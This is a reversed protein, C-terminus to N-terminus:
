IVGQLSHTLGVYDVKINHAANGASRHYVRVKAAGSSVYNGNSNRPIYMTMSAEFTRSDQFARLTDWASTNYNWIDWTIDHTASGSYLWRTVAMTPYKDVNSFVFEVDYGPTAALEEIQFVNGDFMTQVDSVSGTTGDSANVTISSPVFDTWKLNGKSVVAGSQEKYLLDGDAGSGTGDGMWFVAKGEIPDTPDTSLEEITIAGAINLKTPLTTTAVGLQGDKGLVMLSSTNNLWQSHLAGATALTNETDYKYAIADAADAISPKLILETLNAGGYYDGETKLDVGGGGSNQINFIGRTVLGLNFHNLVTAASLATGKYVAVEDMEGNYNFGASDAYFRGMVLGVNDNDWTLGTVDGTGKAVGNVYFRLTNVDRVVVVHNWSDVTVASNDSTFISASGRSFRIANSGAEAMQWGTGGSIARTSLIGLDGGWTGAPKIWIEVTFDGTGFDFDNSDSVNVYDGSGDFTGNHTGIRGPLIFSADGNATGDNSGVADLWDNDMKWYSVIGTEGAVAGQYDGGGEAKADFDFITGSGLFGAKFIMAGKDAHSSSELTLTGRSTDNGSITNGEMNVDSKIDIVSADATLSDLSIDGVNDINNEKFDATGDEQICFNEVPEISGDPTTYLCIKGPASTDSITGSDVSITIRGIKSYQTDTRGAAEVDFCAQGAVVPTHGSTDSNSRTGVINAANATSHRHAIIQFPNENGFDNVRLGTKKVTGNINVGQAESGPDGIDARSDESNFSINGIILKNDDEKFEMKNVGTGFFISAKTSHLTSTLTLDGGSETGGAIIGRVVLDNTLIRNNIDDWFLNDIDYVVINGNSFLIAGTPYASADLEELKKILESPIVEFLQEFAKLIRPDNGFINQLERRTPAKPKIEDAM